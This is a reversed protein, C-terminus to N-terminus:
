AYALRGRCHAVLGQVGDEVLDLVREFEAAESYYPDPVVTDLHQRFFEVLRRVKKLHKPPCMDKTLAQNDWYLTLTLDFREFDKDRGSPGLCAL